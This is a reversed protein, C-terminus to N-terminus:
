SQPSFDLPSGWRNQLRNQDLTVSEDQRSYVKQVDAECRLRRRCRCRCRCECRSPLGSWAKDGLVGGLPRPTQAACHARRGPRPTTIANSANMTCPACLARARVRVITQLRGCLVPNTCFPRSGWGCNGAGSTELSLKQMSQTCLASASEQTPNSHMRAKQLAVM